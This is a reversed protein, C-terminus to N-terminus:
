RRHGGAVKRNRKQFPRSPIRHRKVDRPPDDGISKALIRARFADHAATVRKAKAVAPIDVAATREHHTTRAMPVIRRPDNAPPDYDGTAEDWRRLGLAPSHHWDVNDPDLGLAILAAHLKVTLSM